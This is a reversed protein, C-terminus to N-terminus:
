LLDGKGFNCKSCLTQLNDPTTKGGKSWPIIHDVHLEVSPDTAPSAGCCCCKFNDRKMTKWRLRLNINRTDPSSTHTPVGFTSTNDEEANIYEVFSQLANSWTGFRRLYAGSSIVSIAKNNMDARVPQKGKAIWVREINEYLEDLSFQYNASTHLNARKLAENWSHFRYIVKNIGYKGFDKYQQQTLTDSNIENAIRIIDSILEDDSVSDHYPTYKYEM